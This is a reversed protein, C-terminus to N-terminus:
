KQASIYQDKEQTFGASKSWGFREYFAKDLAPSVMGNPIYFSMGQSSYVYNQFVDTVIGTGLVENKIRVVDDVAAMLEYGLAENYKRVLDCLTCFDYFSKNTKSLPIMKPWPYVMLTDNQSNAVDNWIEKRMEDYSIPLAEMCKQTVQALHEMKDMRYLGLTYYGIENKNVDNDYYNTTTKIFNSLDAHPQTFLYKTALHYPFGYGPLLEVSAVMYDCKDKLEYLTAAEAMLCAHFAIFDFHLSAPIANALKDIDLNKGNIRESNGISKSETTPPSVIWGNGHGGMILGYSDAPYEETVQKLVSAFVDPNGADQDKPYTHVIRSVISKTDDRSIELLVPARFQTASPSWDLYVLLTGEEKLPAGEEMQNVNELLPEWLNIDGFLYALVVRKSQTKEEKLTDSKNCANFLLICLTLLLANKKM